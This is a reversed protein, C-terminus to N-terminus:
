ANSWAKYFDLTATNAAEVIKIYNEACWNGGMVVLMSIKDGAEPYEELKAKLTFQGGVIIYWWDDRNSSEL